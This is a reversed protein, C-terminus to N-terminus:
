PHPVVNPRPGPESGPRERIEPPIRFVHAYAIGNIWVTFDPPTTSVLEQLPGPLLRRQEMNIYSVLYNGKRWDELRAGNGRILPVLQDKYLSVAVIQDANPQQNLYAAAQDLGEGWGVIMTQQAAPAGGLLPNYFSLPYPEVSAVLACQSIGLVLVAPWRWPMPLWRRIASWLGLAALIVLAPYAPLLYRDLKKPSITMMATYLVVFAALTVTRRDLHRLGAWAGWRRVVTVIALVLVGVFTIPSLRLATVIPYFIPRLLAPVDDDPYTQGLFFNGWRRPSEGIGRVARELRILTGIPDGWLAPWILVYILGAALGWLLLDKVLAM